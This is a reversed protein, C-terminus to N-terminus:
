ESLNAVKEREFSFAPTQLIVSDVKTTIFQQMELLQTVNQFFVILNHSYGWRRGQRLLVRIELCFGVVASWRCERWSGRLCVGFRLLRCVGRRHCRKRVVEVVRGLGREWGCEEECVHWARDMGVLTPGLCRLTSRPEVVPRSRDFEKLGLVM